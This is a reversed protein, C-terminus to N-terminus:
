GGRPGGTAAALNVLPGIAAENVAGGAVSSEFVAWYLALRRDHPLTLGRAELEASTLAVARQLLDVDAVPGGYPKLAHDRALVAVDAKDARPVRAQLPRAAPPHIAPLVGGVLWERALGYTSELKALEDHRLNRARGLVLSKVRDLNVGMAAALDLQQLGHHQLVWRIREALSSDVQPPSNVESFNAQM